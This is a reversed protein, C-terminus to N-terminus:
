LRAPGCPSAVPSPVVPAFPSSAHSIRDRRLLRRIIDGDLGALAIEPAGAPAAAVLREAVARMGPGAQRRKGVGGLFALFHPKAAALGGAALRKAVAGMVGQSERKPTAPRPPPCGRRARRTCSAATRRAYPAAPRRGSWPSGAAAPASRGTCCM